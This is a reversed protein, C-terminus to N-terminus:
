NSNGQPVEKRSHMTEMMRHMTKELMYVNERINSVLAKLTEIREKIFAMITALISSSLVRMPKKKVFPYNAFYKRSMQMSSM